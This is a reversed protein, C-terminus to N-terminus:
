ILQKLKDTLKSLKKFDIPDQNLVISVYLGYLFRKHHQVCCEFEELSIIEEIKAITANIDGLQEFFIALFWIDKHVSSFNAEAFTNYKNILNDFYNLLEDKNNIFELKQELDHGRYAKIVFDFLQIFFSEKDSETQLDVSKILRILTNDADNFDNFNLVDDIFDTMSLLGTADNLIKNKPM